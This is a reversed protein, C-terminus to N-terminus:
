HRPVVAVQGAAIAPERSSGDGTKAVRDDPLITPLTVVARAGPKSLNEFHMEGGHAEVIKRVIALGLGTGRSRTTFFPEFIKDKIEEAIGPGHDAIEIRISQNHEDLLLHTSVSIDV